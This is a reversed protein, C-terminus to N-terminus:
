RVRVNHSAETSIWNIILNYCLCEFVKDRIHLMNLFQFFFFSPFTPLCVISYQTSKLLKRSLFKTQFFKILLRHRKLQVYNRTLCNISNEIKLKM